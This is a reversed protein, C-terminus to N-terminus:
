EYRLAEIPNLEAARSAPYIGSVLGVSISVGTSLLLSGITIV